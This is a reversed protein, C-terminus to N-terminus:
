QIIQYESEQWGLATSNRIELKSITQGVTSIFDERMGMFHRSLAVYHSVTDCDMGTMALSWLSRPLGISVM